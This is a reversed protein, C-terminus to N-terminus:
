RSAGGRIARLESVDVTQAPPQLSFPKGYDVFEVYSLMLEVELIYPPGEAAVYLTAGQSEVPVAPVGHLTTPAGVKGGSFNLDGLHVNLTSPLSCFLVFPAYDPDRVTTRLYTGDLLHAAQEDGAKLWYARDSKLYFEEGDVFMDIASGGPSVRVAARRGEFRAEVTVKDDEGVRVRVSPASLTARTAREVIESPELEAVGNGSVTPTVAPNSAATPGSTMSLSLYATPDATPEEGACGALAAPGTFALVLLASRAPWTHDRM